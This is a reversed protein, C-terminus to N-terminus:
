SSPMSPAVTSINNSLAPPTSARHMRFTATLKHVHMFNYYTNKLPV